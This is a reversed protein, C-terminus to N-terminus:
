WKLKNGDKWVEIMDADFNPNEALVATLGDNYAEEYTMGESLGLYFGKAFSVAAVDGIPLNHGIVIIGFKSILEAQYASYCSNLLVLETKGQLPKFLRQITADNLPLSENSDTSLIIGQQIGHGAFHVITPKAKFARMLETIRVALQTPLFQFDARNNGKQMEEKITRHEVDTEIRTENSPNAAAFLIYKAFKEPTEVIQQEIPNRQPPTSTYVIKNGGVNDGNGFHSQTIIDGAEEGILELAAYNIRARKIGADSHNIIGLRVERELDSLQSQLQIIENQQSTPLVKAIVELAEALRGRAILQQITSRSM